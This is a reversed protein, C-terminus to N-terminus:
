GHEECRLVSEIVFETAYSAARGTMVLDDHGPLMEEFMLLTGRRSTLEDLIEVFFPSTLDVYIPKRSKGAIASRQQTAPDVV